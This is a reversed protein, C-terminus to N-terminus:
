QGAVEPAASPPVPADNLLFIYKGFHESASSPDENLTAMTDAYEELVPLIRSEWERECEERSLPPQQVLLEGNYRQVLRGHNLGGLITYTIVQDLDYQPEKFGNVRNKIELHGIIDEGSADTELLDPRGCVLFETGKSTTFVKEYFQDNKGIKVQHERLLQRKTEQEQDEGRKTYLQNTPMQKLFRVKEEPSADLREVANEVEQRCLAQAADLDDTRLVKRARFDSAFRNRYIKSRVREDLDVYTMVKKPGGVDDERGRKLAGAALVPELKRWLWRNQKKVIEFFTQDAPKFFPSNVLMGVSSANIRFM